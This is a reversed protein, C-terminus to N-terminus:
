ITLVLLRIALSLKIVRALLGDGIVFTEVPGPIIPNCPIPPIVAVNYTITSTKPVNCDVPSLGDNTSTFTVMYAGTDDFQIPGTSLGVGSTVPSVGTTPTVEM